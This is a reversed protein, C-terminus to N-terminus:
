STKESLWAMAKDRSSFFQMEYTFRGLTYFFLRTFHPATKSSFLFALRGQRDRYRRFLDFSTQRAHRTFAVQKASVDGLIRFPREPPTNDLAAIFCDSWRDVSADTSDEFHHIEIDGAREVFFGVM